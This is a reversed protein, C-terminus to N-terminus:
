KLIKWYTLMKKILLVLQYLPVNEVRETPPTSVGAEKMEAAIEQAWEPIIESMLKPILAFLNKGPCKTPSVDRHGLVKDIKHAEFITHLVNLQWQTPYEEEFNGALCIHLDFWNSKWDRTAAAPRLINRGFVVEGSKEVFLHYASSSGWGKEKHTRKVNEWQEPLVITNIATHHIVCTNKM